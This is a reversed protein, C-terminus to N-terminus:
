TSLWRLYFKINWSKNMVRDVFISKIHNQTFKWEMERDNPRAKFGLLNQPLLTHLKDKDFFCFIIWWLNELMDLIFICRWTSLKGISKHWVFFLYIVRKWFHWASSVKKNNKLLAKGIDKVFSLLRKAHDDEIHILIILLTKVCLNKISFM